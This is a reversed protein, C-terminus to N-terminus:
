VKWKLMEHIEFPHYTFYDPLCWVQAKSVVTATSLNM